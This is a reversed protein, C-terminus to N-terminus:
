EQPRLFQELQKHFSAGDPDRAATQILRRLLGRDSAVEMLERVAEAPSKSVSGKVLQPPIGSLDALRLLFEAEPYARELITALRVTQERKWDLPQDDLSWPEATRRAPRPRDWWLYLRRIAEMVGLDQVERALEFTRTLLRDAGRGSRLLTQEIQRPGGPFEYRRRMPSRGVAHAIETAAEPGLAEAVGIRELATLVRQPDRRGLAAAQLRYLAQHRILEDAALGDLLRLVRDEEGIRRRSDWLRTREAVNLRRLELEARLALHGHLLPTNAAAGLAEVAEAQRDVTELLDALRVAAAALRRPHAAAVAAALDQRQSSIAAPLDGSAEHLRSEIRHLKSTPLRETVQRLAAWAEDLDNSRLAADARSEVDMELARAQADRRLRESVEGRRMGVVAAAPPPLEALSRELSSLVEATLRDALADPPEGLMLRHYVHEAPAWDDALSEFYTAACEHVAYVLEGDDYRLAALGPRRLDEHLVLVGQDWAQHLSTHLGLSQFLQSAIGPDSHRGLAPLLVQQIVGPTLRRVALAARGVDRLADRVSEYRDDRLGLDRPELHEIIRQYLFGRVFESRVEGLAAARRASDDIASPGQEALVRAALKLTLPSGGVMKIVDRALASPLPVMAPSRGKVFVDLLQVAADAPLEDVLIAQEDRIPLLDPNPRSRGSVVVRLHPVQSSMMRLTEILPISQPRDYPDRLSELEEFTDLVLVFPESRDGPSLDTVAKLIQGVHFTREKNLELQDYAELGRRTDLHRADRTYADIMRRLEPFQTSVQRLLEDLVAATSGTRFPLRDFDIYAWGQKEGRETAEALERIFRAVLTSKGMGGIGHVVMVGFADFAGFSPGEVRWRRLRELEEDRGLCGNALLADIPALLDLRALRATIAEASPGLEVDASRNALAAANSLWRRVQLAASLEAVTLEELPQRSGLVVADLARQLPTDDSESVESRVRALGPFGESGLVRALVSVREAERAAWRAPVRDGARATGPGAVPSALLRMAQRGEENRYRNPDFAALVAMQAASETRMARERESAEERLEDSWSVGYSM